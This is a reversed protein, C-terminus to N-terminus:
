QEEGGERSTDNIISESIANKEVWAPMNGAENVAEIYRKMPEFLRTIHEGDINNPDEGQVIDWTVKKIFKGGDGYIIEAKSGCTTCKFWDARLFEDVADDYCKMTYTDCTFCKVQKSMHPSDPTVLGDLVRVRPTQEAGIIPLNLIKSIEMFMYCKRTIIDLEHPEDRYLKISWSQKGPTTIIISDEMGEIWSMVPISERVQILIPCIFEVVDGPADKVHKINICQMFNMGFEDYIWKFLNNHETASNLQIKTGAPFDIEMYEFPGQYVMEAAKDMEQIIYNAPVTM